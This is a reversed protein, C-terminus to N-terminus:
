SDISASAARSSGGSRDRERSSPDPTSLERLSLWCSDVHKSCGPWSRTRSRGSMLASTRKSSCREGTSSHLHCRQDPQESVGKLRAAGRTSAQQVRGRASSQVRTWQGTSWTTAAAPLARREAHSPRPSPSCRPSCRPAALSSRSLSAGGAAARATRRSRPRAFSIERSSSTSLLPFSHCSRRTHVFRNWCRCVQFPDNSPALAVFPRSINLSENALNRLTEECM